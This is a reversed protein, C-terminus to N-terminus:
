KKNLAKLQDELRKKQDRFQNMQQQIQEQTMGPPHNLYFEQMQQNIQNIQSQLAEADPTGEGAIEEKLEEVSELKQKCKWSGAENEDWICPGGYEELAKCIQQGYTTSKLIETCYNEARKVFGEGGVFVKRQEAQEMQSVVMLQPKGSVLEFPYLAEGISVFLKKSPPEPM